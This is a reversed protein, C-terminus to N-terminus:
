TPYLPAVDRGMARLIREAAVVGHYQAEEFLALGSLDTHAFHVRGRPRSAERRARGWIFGPVPRVMAHGWRWVDLREIADELGRHARGLDAVVADAIERHGLELLRRRGTAPDDDQMPQYYTWITPGLDRLTQHTAVVYGLSPSDYLVNDWAFPFGRSGPRERLHLNAVMWAGYSFGDTELAPVGATGLIRAAVFRPVALVAHDAVIRRVSRSSADAVDVVVRSADAHVRTALQGLKLRDGVVKTLHRVIHGNGEPWTLLPAAKTDPTPVRSAYYFLMAWASTQELRLGYDDRCAYDVLWRLVESRYGKRRLWEAASQRDVDVLSADDSCLALPLTFARRGSGDRVGALRAMEASFRAIEVTDDPSTRSRPVLGEYWAGDAFIREEPARVLARRAGRPARADSLGGMEALLAVLGPNESSPVPVYHAGWPYPCVGDTGFASTGGPQKELDLVVFDRDGLRSLRWAASLGAPGAGVIVTGVRQEAGTPQARADARLLHGFEQSGGRIEGPV